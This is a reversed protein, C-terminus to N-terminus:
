FKINDIEICRKLVEPSLEVNIERRSITPRIEHLGVMNHGVINYVTDDEPHKNIINNKVVAISTEDCSTEIALIIM